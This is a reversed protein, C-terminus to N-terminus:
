RRTTCVWAWVRETGPGRVKNVAARQAPRRNYRAASAWEVMRGSRTRYAVVLCGNRVWGAKRCAGKYKANVPRNRCANYAKSVARSRLGYNYAANSTGTRINIAIAAHCNPVRCGARALTRESHQASPAEPTSAPASAASAPAAPLLTAGLLAAVVAALFLRIAPVRTRAPAKTM